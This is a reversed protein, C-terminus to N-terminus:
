VVAQIAKLLEDQDFQSKILYADAGALLGAERQEPKGLSTLLIVPLHRTAPHEKIRRTLALGDIRPMEVDSIVVDFETELLIEWAQQGDYAVRVDCGATELINKELTRTTISDDAILVRVRAAEKAAPPHFPRAQRGVIAQSSTRVLENADLVLIVEGDNLLAAGSMLPTDALEAGLPKLILEQETLLEDVEFAAQRDAAQLVIVRLLDDVAPQAAIGLLAGLSVLPLTRENIRVLPRGESMLVADHPVRELRVISLAPLAYTEDALRLVVARIRNLSVPVSLSVTTGQGIASTLSVRGRLSEVRDRVVDMGIGRGSIAGVQERTTLGAHFVMMRAEDDSLADAASGTLIGARVAAARVQAPDIGAGDDRLHIAIESGRSEVELVIWGVPPKGALERVDLPEIGHDVANRLLHLLPDKLAELVTKDIETAAGIIDLHVEKTTQRAADRLARQLVGTLTEFPLLRLANLQDQLSDALAEVRLTDATLAAALAGATRTTETLYQQNRELFDFLTQVEPPFAGSQLQRALRIYDARVARWDRAWKRQVRRVAELQRRREQLQLHAITLESAEELLADIKNVQVRVTDEAPRMLITQTTASNRPIPPATALPEDLVLAPFGNPEHTDTLFSPTLAFNTNLAADTVVPASKVHAALGDAVQQVSDTPVAEGDATQAILDLADYLLDAIDPTIGLGRKLSAEFVDELQHALVEIPKIGVARAAGKMSHAVRNLERLREVFAGSDEGTLTMELAMIQANMLDLYERVETWFLKLLETENV